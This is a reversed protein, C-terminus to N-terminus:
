SFLEGFEPAYRIHGGRLADATATLPLFQFADSDGYDCTLKWRRAPAFGFRPYYTPHGLVVVWHVSTPLRSDSTPEPVQSKHSRVKLWEGASDTPLEPGEPGSPGVQAPRVKALRHCEALGARVLASGLGQNQFAPLVAVPALGLGVHDAQEALPPMASLRDSEARSALPGCELTASSFLIHGVVEGDQEAVLSIAGKGREILLAVLRAELDTPFAARHVAEIAHLDASTAPRVLTSIASFEPKFLTL